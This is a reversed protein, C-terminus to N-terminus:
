FTMSFQSRDGTVPIIDSIILWEWCETSTMHYLMTKIHAQMQQDQTFFKRIKKNQNKDTAPQSTKCKTKMVKNPAIMLRMINLFLVMPYLINTNQEGFSLKSKFSTLVLTCSFYFIYILSSSFNELSWSYYYLVLYTALHIITQSSM